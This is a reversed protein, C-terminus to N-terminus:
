ADCIAVFVLILEFSPIFLNTNITILRAPVAM